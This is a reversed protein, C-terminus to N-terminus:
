FSVAANVGLLWTRGPAPEYYRQNGENVIVSGAYHKDFLNDVRAFARWDWGALRMAYGVHASAVGFGPAWEDNADNVYVKSLWRAELGGRLGTAPLWGVSAFLSQRAIGPIRNGTNPSGERYRADLWTYAASAQLDRMFSRSWLAELGRRRTEGVNQFVSRGNENVLTFIEQETRTEFLAVNFLGLSAYRTKAGVEVNDSKAPRLDFNPGTLPAVRYALENLTPTEFGRGATAYLRVNDTAKFSVGAVPLTASYRVSGSDDPNVDTIFNDTSRVKITSHRVGADVRWRPALEWFGQVYQDNSRATNNEDRRVPGEVGLTTGIFNRRGVRHEDLEDYALGAVLAYPRDGGGKVTWRLDTGRYDRALQILGGPHLLQNQVFVPIAQFQETDRQGGYVMVRLAGASGFDRDYTAGAQIQDVTKRSNFLIANAVVSSPAVEFATRDLGLPDEAKPLDMYNLVFTLKSAADPKGTLKINALDRKASSHNRYGETVFRNADIVYGFAPSGGTLKAGARVTGYSGGATGLTVTPPGNGEETFVEIVGGSSNGYLASFPGRLIEIRDVSGLDIHSVQGQGDPLTAPIGDVIVRVGRIGFPARAGFGRVSIQVDQAYNQRDRAILGPVGGLSESLNVQLKDDRIADGEVIDISAPVDIPLAEVRTATVVVPPLRAAPAGTPTTQALACVPLLAMAAIQNKM